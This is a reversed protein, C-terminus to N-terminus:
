DFSNIANKQKQCKERENQVNESKVDKFRGQPTMQFFEDDIPTINILSSYPCIESLSSEKLVTLILELCNAHMHMLNQKEIM